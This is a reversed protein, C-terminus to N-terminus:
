SKANSFEASIKELNGETLGYFLSDFINTFIRFIFHLYWFFGNYFTFSKLSIFNETVNSEPCKLVLKIFVWVYPIFNQM